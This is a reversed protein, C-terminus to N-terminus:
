GFIHKIEENQNNAIFRILYGNNPTYASPDCEFHIADDFTYTFEGGKWGDFVENTLRRLMDLNYQKSTEEVSIECCPEAYIGRWSFVDEIRFNMTNSPWSEIKDYLEGLTINDGM